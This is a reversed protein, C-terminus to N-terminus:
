IKVSICTYTLFSLVDKEALVEKHFDWKGM